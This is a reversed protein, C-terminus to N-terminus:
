FPTAGKTANRLERLLDPLIDEIEGQVNSLVHIGRKQLWAKTASDIGGCVLTDVGLCVIQKKKESFSEKAIPMRMMVSITQKQALVVLLEPATSFHPSVREGFLPIAITM